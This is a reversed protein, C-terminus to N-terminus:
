KELQPFSSVKLFEIMEKVRQTIVAKCKLYFVNLFVESWLSKTTGLVIRMMDECQTRLVDITSKRYKEMSELSDENKLYIGDQYSKELMDKLPNIYFQIIIEALRAVRPPEGVDITERNFSEVFKPTFSIGLNKMPINAKRVQKAVGSYLQPETEYMLYYVFYM